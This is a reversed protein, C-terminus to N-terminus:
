EYLYRLGGFYRIRANCSNAVGLCHNLGFLQSVGVSPNKQTWHQSQFLPGADRRSAMQFHAKSTAQQTFAVRQRCFLTARDSHHIVQFGPHTGVQRLITVDQHSTAVEGQFRCPPLTSDGQMEQSNTWEPKLSIWTLHLGEQQCHQPPPAAPRPLTTACKVLFLSKEELWVKNSREWRDWWSKWVAPLESNHCDPPDSLHICGHVRPFRSDDFQFSKEGSVLPNCFQLQNEAPFVNIFDTIHCWKQFHCLITTM